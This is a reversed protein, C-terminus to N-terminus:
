YDLCEFKIEHDDTVISGGSQNLSSDLLRTVETLWSIKVYVKNSKLSGMFIILALCFDNCENTCRLSLLVLFLFYICPKTRNSM